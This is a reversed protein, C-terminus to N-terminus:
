PSVGGSAQHELWLRAYVQLFRFRSRNISELRDTDGRYRRDDVFWHFRKEFEQARELSRTSQEILQALRENDNGQNLRIIEEVEEEMKVRLAACQLFFCELEWQLSGPAVHKSVLKPFAGAEWPELRLRHAEKAQCAQEPPTDFGVLELAFGIKQLADAILPDPPLLDTLSPIEEEQEAEEDYEDSLEMPESLIEPRSATMPASPEDDLSIPEQLARAVPPQAPQPAGVTSVPSLPIPEQEVFFLPDSDSTPYAKVETHDDSKDFAPPPQHNEQPQEVIPAQPGNLPRPTGSTMSMSTDFAELVRLMAQRLGIIDDRKVNNQKRSSDFQLRCERFTDLQERLEAHVLEPNKEVYREIEFIRNTDEFIRVEEDQYLKKFRAKAEINTSVIKVLLKPSVYSPGLKHKFSRYKDLVGSEMFASFEEFSSIQSQLAELEEILPSEQDPPLPDIGAFAALRQFKPLMEGLGGAAAKDDVSPAEALRTLLMDLKDLNDQDPTKAMLYFKSLAFLIKQDQRKLHDFFRRLLSPPFEQEITVLELHVRQLEKEIDNLERGTSGTDEMGLQPLAAQLRRYLGQFDYSFTLSGRELHKFVGGLFQYFTWLSRFRDSLDTYQDNLRQAITSTM